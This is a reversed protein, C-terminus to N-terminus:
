WRFFGFLYFLVCGKLFLLCFSPLIGMKWISKWCSYIKTYLEHDQPFFFFFDHMTFLGTRFSTEFYFSECMVYCKEYSSLLVASANEGHSLDNMVVSSGWRCSLAISQNERILYKLPKYQNICGSFEKGRMGSITTESDEWWLDWDGLYDQM